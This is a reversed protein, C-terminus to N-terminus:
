KLEKLYKMVAQGVARALLPPVANGILRYQHTRVVPFVFDDPFSQLRAAERPTLSRCQTPHIFMLGDKSMHAVITSSLRNRHQRTYRDRFSERSYPFDMKEGREEAQGGNEGERLKDFDGLDRDNHPRAMHATLERDPSVRIVDKLYRDGYRMLQKELKRRNLRNKEEGASLRPLDGIAEWLTVQPELGNVCVGEEAHTPLVREQVSFHPLGKRVGVYVLRTRKQPVGYQAARLIACDLVYGANEAERFLAHYIRGGEASRMGPVNEVVFVKPQFHRINRMFPRFLERRRDAILREGNNSGDVQRAHSFGQCPLGAVIVDVKEVGASKQLSEPKLHRLDNLLIPHESVFNEKYVKVAQPDSDVAALVRFGAERMGLSLGGCGAFLDIASFQITRRM